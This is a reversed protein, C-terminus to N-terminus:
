KFLKPNSMKKTRNMLKEIDENAYYYTGGVKSFTLDGKLRLSQLTGHSIQLLERVENTKLWKQQKQTTGNIISSIDKLLEHRFENLDEKTIVEIAMCNSKLILLAFLTFLTIGFCNM